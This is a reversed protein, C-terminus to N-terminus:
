VFAKELADAFMNIDWPKGQNIDNVQATLVDRVKNVSGEDINNKSLIHLTKEMLADIIEGRALRWAAKSDAEEGLIKSLVTDFVAGLIKKGNPLGDLFELRLAVARLGAQIISAATASNIRKDGASKLAGLMAEVADGLYENKNDAHDIIWAPNRAVEGLAADLVGIVDDKGFNPSWTDDSNSAESLRSLLDKSAVMLIRRSPHTGGAPWLLDLNDGSKEIIIRIAEPFVGNDIVSDIQSLEEAIQGVLSKLKHDDGIVLEPNKAVAGLAAKAIKDLSDKSFAQDLKGEPADIIVGLISTSVDEVFTSQAGEKTGLYVAPNKAVEGGASKLVSRFVLEAWASTRNKQKAADLAGITNSEYAHQIEDFRNAVNKALSTASLKILKQINPDESIVETSESVTELVAIFFQQPLDGLKDESFKIDDLAEFLAHLAKGERSELNLGGPINAFYDVGIEVLTGGIRQLTSTTPDKERSWQRVTVFYSLDGSSILSGDTLKATGKTAVREEIYYCHLDMLEDDALGKGEELKTLLNNLRPSSQNRNQQFYEMASGFDPTQDFDPLPLTIERRRTSDVYAARSAGGLKLASKIAFMIVNPALLPVM